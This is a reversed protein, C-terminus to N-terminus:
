FYHNIQLRLRWIPVRSIGDSRQISQPDPVVLIRTALLPQSREQFIPPWTRWTVVRVSRKLNLFLSELPLDLVELALLLSGLQVARIVDAWRRPRALVLQISSFFTGIVKGAQTKPLSSRFSGV